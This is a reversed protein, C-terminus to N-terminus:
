NHGPLAAFSPTIAADAICMEMHSYVDVIYPFVCGCVISWVHCGKCVHEGTFLESYSVEFQLRHLFMLLLKNTLSYVQGLPTPSPGRPRVGTDAGSCTHSSRRMRDMTDVNHHAFVCDYLNLDTRCFAIPCNM